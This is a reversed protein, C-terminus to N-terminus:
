AFRDTARRCVRGGIAESDSHVTPESETTIRTLYVRRPQSFRLVEGCTRFHPFAYRILM